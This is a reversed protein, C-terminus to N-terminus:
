IMKEMGQLIGILYHINELHFIGIDHNLGSLEGTKHAITVEDLIYRPLMDRYKQRSLIDMM